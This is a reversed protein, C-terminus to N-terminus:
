ATSQCRRLHVAIKLSERKNVSINIPEFHNKNEIKDDCPKCDISCFKVRKGHYIKMHHNLDKESKCWRDCVSCPYESEFYSILDKDHDEYM